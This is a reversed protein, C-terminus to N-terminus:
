EWKENKLTEIITMISCYMEHGSAKRFGGAMKQRNKAKRLDRESINDDFPVSFDHLFLLHNHHYKEMRSLLAAKEQKAYKHTTTKNEARGQKLISFYKEEYDATTGAPMADLGQGTLMKWQKNEFLFIRNTPYKMANTFLEMVPCDVSWCLYLVRHIHCVEAIVPYFNISFVFMPSHKTILDSVTKACASLAIKKNTIETKEEIVNVGLATFTAIIDPECINGYRYFLINM